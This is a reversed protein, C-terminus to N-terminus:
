SSATDVTISINQIEYMLYYSLGLGHTPYLSPIKSHSPPYLSLIDLTVEPVLFLGTVTLSSLLHDGRTSFM